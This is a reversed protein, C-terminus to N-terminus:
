YRKSGKLPQPDDNHFYNDVIFYRIDATCELIDSLHYIQRTGFGSGFHHFICICNYGACAGNAIFFQKGTRGHFKNGSSGDTVIM